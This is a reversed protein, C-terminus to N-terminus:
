PVKWHLGALKLVQPIFSDTIQLAPQRKGGASFQVTGCAAPGQAVALRPGGGWALFTLRIRGGLPAPCSAGPGITSLQLSDVLAALRRVVAPDTITVPAPPRRAHPDLSPLQIITVVRTASPVRDSGPRPPQWSVQADVRIATQGNGVGAVEVVLDRANLLGPIPSLSFTRDWSPPGFDADGPTFHRPLHAQEWALVAQPQGPVRWFSVDDVLTTSVLTSSPAKVWGGLVDPAKPLRQAGPPVAFAKLIAAAGAVARERPTASVAPHTATCGAVAMAACAALLLATGPACRVRPRMGRPRGAPCRPEARRCCASQANPDAALGRIARTVRDDRSGTVGAVQEPVPIPIPGGINVATDTVHHGPRVIGASSGGDFDELGSGGPLDMMCRWSGAAGGALRVQLLAALHCAQQEARDCSVSREESALSPQHRAGCLM